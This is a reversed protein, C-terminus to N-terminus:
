NIPFHVNGLGTHVGLINLKSREQKEKELRTTKVGRKYLDANLWLSELAREKHMERM